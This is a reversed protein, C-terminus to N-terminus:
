NSQKEWTKEEEEEEEEEEENPTSCSIKIFKDKLVITFFFEVM